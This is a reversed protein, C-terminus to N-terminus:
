KVEVELPQALVNNQQGQGLGLVQLRVPGKGLTASDLDLHGEAGAIRGLLRTGQLVLAGVSGPGKVSVRLPKGSSVAHLPSISAQITRDHNATLLPIIQRGQSCIPGAAVAVVRLEHYGDVLATTDLALTGQPLCKLVRLGHVFLEFHDIGAKGSVTAQPKLTLMGKVAPGAPLGSVSVQPIDAWPRCLPDGVILLQYPGFISLYFAEALTCGQAYHVQIDPAPFKQALAFPETVTGSAGAAGYRLFESLPTQGSKSTMVGGFSTFHECIAGPLITSGSAKWDFDAIGIMAGQVNKKNQARHRQSNGRGRGLRCAKVAAPLEGQRVKSRIDGNRCFYIAGKPHTGDAAASRRLYSLVENVTNGRGSTVGLMVSLVYQVGNRELMEGGATFNESSNFALIPAHDKSSHAHWMYFNSHLGLYGPRALLVPEWLFTLGTISGVPTFLQMWSPPSAAAKKGDKEAKAERDKQIQANFEKLDADLKIGWPYDSSYVVYDIQDRARRGRAAELLPTLIRKRFTAIDTTEDKPDWPLYVVNSAPIQRLKIYHNAITQSAVSRPNVVLLVNEPGGGARAPRAPALVLFTLLSGFFWSHCFRLSTTRSM